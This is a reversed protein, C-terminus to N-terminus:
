TTNELVIKAIPSNMVAAAGFRGINRRPLATAPIPLPPNILAVIIRARFRELGFRRPKNIPSM